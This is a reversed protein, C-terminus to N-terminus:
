ALLAARLQIPYIVGRENRVTAVNDIIVGLRIRQM